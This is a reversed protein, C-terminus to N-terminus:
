EVKDKLMEFQNQEVGGRPARRFSSDLGYHSMKSAVDINKQTELGFMRPYLVKFPTDGCWAVEWFSTNKGNGLKLHIFSVLDLGRSKFREVENIIDLWISSYCTKSKNGFNGDEGHLAIIVRAWLCSKQTIFRWVWKFMLARNLAFLSSVGLGGKDKSSLVDKWKVWTPKKSASDVGNFFLSRLSEM